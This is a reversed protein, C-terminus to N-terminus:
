PLRGTRIHPQQERLHRLPLFLSEAVPLANWPWWQWADCKEPECVRPTGSALHAQYFLTVYHRREDTFIDNTIGVFEVDKVQIGAEELAERQLCDIPEEGFELHGGPPSWTGAGHAGRRLGLLVSDERWVLVGVGVLPRAPASKSTVPSLTGSNAAIIQFQM